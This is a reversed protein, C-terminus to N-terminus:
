RIKWYAIDWINWYEIQLACHWINLICTVFIGLPMNMISESTAHILIHLICHWINSICLLMNIMTNMLQHCMDCQPKTTWFWIHLRSIRPKTKCAVICLLAYHLSCLICNNCLRCVYRMNPAFSYLVISQSCLAYIDTLYHWRMVDNGALLGIISEGNAYQIKCIFSHSGKQLCPHQGPRTHKKFADRLCDSANFTVNPAVNVAPTLRWSCNPNIDYPLPLQKKWSKSIMTVNTVSLDSADLDTQLQSPLQTTM